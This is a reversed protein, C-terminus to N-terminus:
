SFSTSCSRVAGARVLFYLIRNTLLARNKLLPLLYISGVYVAAWFGMRALLIMPSSIRDHFVAILTAFLLLSGLIVADTAQLGAKLFSIRTGYLGSIRLSRATSTTETM